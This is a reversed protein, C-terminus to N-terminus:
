GPGGPRAPHPVGRRPSGPGRGRGELLQRGPHQVERVHEQPSSRAERYGGGAILVRGDPLVAAAPSTRASGMVGTRTWRGSAPDLLCASSYSYWDANTGGAILARGDQLRVAAFQGRAKPLSDAESWRQTVPDCRDM